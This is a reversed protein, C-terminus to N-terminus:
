VRERCSARGIEVATEQTAFGTQIVAETEPAVAKLQQLLEIGSMGPMKLDIIAADFTSKELAKLAARGHPCVTVEHGMRPLEARMVEQLHEEDDVFLVRLSKHSGPRGVSKSAAHDTM